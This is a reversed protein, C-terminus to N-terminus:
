ERPFTILDARNYYASVSPPVPNSLYLVCRTQNYAMPHLPYFPLTSSFLFTYYISYGLPRITDSQVFHTLPHNDPSPHSSCPTTPVTTQNDAVSQVPYFQLIHPHVLIQYIGAGGGGEAQNDSVPTISMSQFTDSM